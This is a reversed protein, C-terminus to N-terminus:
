VELAGNVGGGGCVSTLADACVAFLARGGCTWRM